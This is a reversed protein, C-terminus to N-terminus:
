KRSRTKKPEATPPPKTAEFAERAADDMGAMAECFFQIEESETYGALKAYGILSDFALPGPGSFGPLRFRALFSYAALYFSVDETVEPRALLAPPVTGTNQWHAYLTPANKAWRIQWDVTARLRKLLAQQADDTEGTSLVLEYLRPLKSLAFVANAPSYPFERGRYRMGEWGLLVTAAMAECRLARLAAVDVYEDATDLGARLIRRAMDALYAPSSTSGLLLTCGPAFQVRRM